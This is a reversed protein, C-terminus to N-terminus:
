DEYKELNPTSNGWVPFGNEFWGSYGDSIIVIEGEYMKVLENVIDTTRRNTTCYVLVRPTVLHQQLLELLNPDDADINIANKLHGESFMEQTRGDIVLTEKDDLLHLYNEFFQHATVSIVRQDFVGEQSYGM